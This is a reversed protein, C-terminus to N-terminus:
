RDINYEHSTNGGSCVGCDDILAVGYCMGACDRFSDNAIDGSSVCVDCSRLTTMSVPIYDCGLCTSDDGDCVDCADYLMNSGITGDCSSCGSGDGGCVCCADHVVGGNVNGHCDLRRAQITATVDSFRGVGYYLSQLTDIHSVTNINM